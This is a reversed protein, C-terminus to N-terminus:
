TRQSSNSPPTKAAKTKKQEAVKVLYAQPFIRVKYVLLGLQRTDKSNEDVDCPRVPSAGLLLKLVTLRRHNPAAPIVTSVVTQEGDADQSCSKEIDDIFIRLGSLMEPKLGRGVLIECVLPETRDIMLDVTSFEAPGSWRYSSMNNPLTEPNHWNRGSFFGALPIEISRPLDVAVPLQGKADLTLPAQTAQLGHTLMELRIQGIDTKLYGIEDVLLLFAHKMFSFPDQEAQLRELKRRLQLTNDYAIEGYLDGFYEFIDRLSPDITSPQSM